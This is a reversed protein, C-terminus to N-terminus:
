RELRRLADQARRSKETISIDRGEISLLDTNGQTIDADAQNGDNELEALREELPTIKYKLALHEESLDALIRLQIASSLKQHRTARSAQRKLSRYQKEVEQFVDDIRSLNEGTSELRRLAANRREKYKAVGAAEEILSRRVASHGTIIGEVMSLEIISYASHGLGTDIFLEHIDRLRSPNRNILYESEGSRYLRRTISVETYPSPLLGKDNEITLTVEAMSLPRRHHTGNFIVSEMREARLTGTRQEGLVWRISDVINTKGCGNPGVVSMIGPRFDITTRSAFSKFGIMELRTIYL